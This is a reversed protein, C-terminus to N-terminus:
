FLDKQHTYVKEWLEAPSDYYVTGQWPQMLGLAGIGTVTEKAMTSSNVDFLMPIIDEGKEMVNEYVDFMYPELLSAFRERTM